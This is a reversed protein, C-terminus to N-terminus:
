LQPGHLRRLGHPEAGPVHEPQLLLADTARRPTGSTSVLHLAALLLFYLLAALLFARLPPKRYASYFVLAGGWIPFVPLLFALSGALGYCVQRMGAFVDGSIGTVVSLFILLGLAILLLGGVLHLAMTDASYAPARRPKRPKSKQAPM